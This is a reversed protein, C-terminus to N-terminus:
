KREVWEDIEIAKDNMNELDSHGGRERILPTTSYFKEMIDKVIERPGNNNEILKMATNLYDKALETLGDKMVERNVDYYEFKM